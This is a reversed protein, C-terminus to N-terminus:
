LDSLLILEKDWAGLIQWYSGFPSQVLLIPDNRKYVDKFNVEEAIVYFVPTKGCLEKVHDVYSQMINIAEEPFKAIFLDSSKLVLKYKFVLETVKDTTTNQFQEFYEKFQEYKRRNELREVMDLVEKQAYHNSKILEKKMKLVKIKDDLNELTIPTPVTGLEDFVEIPKYKRPEGLNLEGGTSVVTPSNDSSSVSIVNDGQHWGGLFDYLFVEKEGDSNMAFINDMETRMIQQGREINAMDRRHQDIIEKERDSLEIVDQKDMAYQTNKKGWFKFKSLNM